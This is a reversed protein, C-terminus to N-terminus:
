LKNSELARSLIRAPDVGLPACLRVFDSICLKQPQGNSQPKKLNQIKRRGNITGLFASNGWAEDTLGKEKRLADLYELIDREVKVAVGEEIM